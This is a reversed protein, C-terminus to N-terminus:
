EEVVGIDFEIAAVKQFLNSRDGSEVTDVLNELTVRRTYLDVSWPGAGAEVTLRVPEDDFSYIPSDHKYAEIEPIDEPQQVFVDVAYSEPDPLPTVVKDRLEPPLDRKATIDAVVRKPDHLSTVGWEREDYGDVDIDGVYLTPEPQKEGLATAGATGLVALTGFGTLVQRRSPTWSMDSNSEGSM